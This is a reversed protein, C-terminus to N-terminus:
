RAFLGERLQDRGVFTKSSHFRSFLNLIERNQFVRVSPLLAPAPLVEISQTDLVRYRNFGEPPRSHFIALVAGGPRLLEYLRAVLRESAEPVLYDFIDWALVADFTEPPHVLNVEAFAEALATFNPPEVDSSRRSRAADRRRREDETLFDRWTRLLDETYVKFGRETFLGVTSQWVTGLDLLHGRQVDNLLWLFEKLANSVRANRPVSVPTGASAASATRDTSLRPKGLLAM